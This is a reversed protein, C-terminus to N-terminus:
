KFIISRLMPLQKGVNEHTILDYKQWGIFLSKQNYHSIATTIPLILSIVM